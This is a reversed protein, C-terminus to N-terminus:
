KKRVGQINLGAEGYKNTLEYGKQLAEFLDNGEVFVEFTVIYQKNESMM